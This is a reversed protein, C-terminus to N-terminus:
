SYIKLINEIPKLYYNRYGLENPHVGDSNSTFTTKMYENYINLGSLVRMDILIVSWKKCIKEAIDMYEKTATLSMNHPIIFFIKKGKWKEFSKNFLSELAGCFTFENLDNLYDEDFMTEDFDGLPVKQWADNVGGEFVIFDAEDQMTELRELISDNRGNKKSVLTGSIGYNIYGMQPNKESLLKAYGGYYGAGFCISDGSFLYTGVLSNDKLSTNKLQGIDDKIQKLTVENDVFAYQGFEIYKNTMKVGKLIMAKEKDRLYLNFRLYVDKTATYTYPLQNSTLIIINEFKKNDDYQVITKYAQFNITVSEGSKVFLYDNTYCFNSDATIWGGDNIYKGEKLNNLNLYNVVFDNSLDFGERLLNLINKEFDRNKRGLTDYTILNTGIRADMLEADGTTSGNELKLINDIRKKEIDLEIASAKHALQSDVVDLRDNFGDYFEQRIEENAMRQTENAVREAENEIRNEENEIRKLENSQIEAETYKKTM